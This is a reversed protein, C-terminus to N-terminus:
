RRLAIRALALNAFPKAAAPDLEVARQFEAAAQEYARRQMYQVGLDNHAEMYDPFIALAKRLYRISEAHAGKQAAAPPPHLLSYVSVKGCTPRARDLEQLRFAVGEVAGHVSVFQRQIVTENLDAVRLEYEGSAAATLEFSGDPMIPVRDLVRGGAVIEIALADPRTLSEWTVQGRVSAAGTHPSQGCLSAASAASATCFFAMCLCMYLIGPLRV